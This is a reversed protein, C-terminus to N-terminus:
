KIKYIQYLLIKVQIECFESSDQSTQTNQDLMVHGSCIETSFSFKISTKSTQIYVTESMAFLEKFIRTFETSSMKIISGYVSDPIGLHESDLTILCLKFESIKRLDLLLYKM